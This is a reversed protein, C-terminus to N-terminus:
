LIASIIVDSFKLRYVEAHLFIKIILNHFCIKHTCKCNLYVFIRYLRHICRRMSLLDICHCIACLLSAAHWTEVHFGNKWFKIFLMRSNNARYFGSFNWIAFRVFQNLSRISVGFPTPKQSIMQVHAKEPGRDRILRFERRKRTTFNGKVYFLPQIAWIRLWSKKAKETERKRQKKVFGSLRKKWRNTPHAAELQINEKLRIEILRQWPLLRQCPKYMRCGSERYSDPCKKWRNTPHFGRNLIRCSM